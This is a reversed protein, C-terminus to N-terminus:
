IKIFEFETETIDSNHLEIKTIKLMNGNAKVNDVLKIFEINHDKNNPCTIECNYETWVYVWKAEVNCWFRYKKYDLSIKNKIIESIDKSFYKNM